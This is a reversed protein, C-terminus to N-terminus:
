RRDAALFAKRARAAALVAAGLGLLVWPEPEPATGPEDGDYVAMLGEGNESWLIRGGNEMGMGFIDNGNNFFIRDVGDFVPHMPPPVLSCCIGNEAAALGLGFHNLFPNWLSGEGEHGGWGTGAALYVNGGNLVFDILAANDVKNGAVFVAAYDRWDLPDPGRTVELGQAALSAEFRAGFGFNDSLIAVMRSARGSTLWRAVNDAFRETGPATQYGYDSFTWEDHNVFIRNADAATACLGLAALIPKMM